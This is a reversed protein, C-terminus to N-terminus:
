AYPPSETCPITLKELSHLLRVIVSMQKILVVRENPPVQAQWGQLPSQAKLSNIIHRDLAPGQLSSEQQVANQQLDGSFGGTHGATNQFSLNNM